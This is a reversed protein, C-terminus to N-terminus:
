KIHIRGAIKLVRPPANRDRTRDVVMRVAEAALEKPELAVGSLGASELEAEAGVTAMFVDRGFERMIHERLAAAMASWHMYAADFLVGRKWYDSIRRLALELDHAAPPLVDQSLWLVRHHPVNEQALLETLGEEREFEAQAYAYRRFIVAKRHSSRTFLLRGIQKGVARNDVVVSDTDPLHEDVSCTVIGADKLKGVVSYLEEHPYYHCVVAGLVLGEAALDLAEDMKRSMVEKVRMGYREAAERVGLSLEATFAGDEAYRWGSKSPTWPPRTVYLLLPGAESPRPRGPHVRLGSGPRALLLGEKKLIGVARQIVKHNVNFEDALTRITKGLPSGPRRLLLSRRLERYVQRWKPM